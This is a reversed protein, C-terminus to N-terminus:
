RRSQPGTDRGPLSVLGAALWFVTRFSMAVVTQLEYPRDALIWVGLGAPILM